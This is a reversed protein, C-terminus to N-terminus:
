TAASHEQAESGKKITIEFRQTNLLTNSQSSPTGLNLSPWSSLLMHMVFFFFRYGNSRRGLGGHKSNKKKAPSGKQHYEMSQNPKLKM